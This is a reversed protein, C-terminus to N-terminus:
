QIIQQARLHHEGAVPRPLGDGFIHGLLLAGGAMPRMQNGHPRRVLNARHTEHRGDLLQVALQFLLAEVHIVNDEGTTREPRLGPQAHTRLRDSERGLNCGNRNVARAALQLAPDGLDAPAVM